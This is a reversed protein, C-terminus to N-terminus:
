TKRETKNGVQVSGVASYSLFGRPRESENKFVFTNYGAAPPNHVKIFHEDTWAKMGYDKFRQLVRNALSEDQPSGARHDSHSFESRCSLFM